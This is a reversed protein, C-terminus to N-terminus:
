TNSYYRQCKTLVLLTKGNKRVDLELCKWKQKNQYFKFNVFKLTQYPLFYLDICIKTVIPSIPHLLYQEQM